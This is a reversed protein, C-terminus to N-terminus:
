LSLRFPNEKSGNGSSLIVNSNLYFVPRVANKDSAYFIELVGDDCLRFVYMELSPSPTITWEYLGMYLWNDTAYFDYEYLGRNWKEPSAAYGYDSPYMLGIYGETSTPNSGYGTSGREYEYFAAATARTDTAGGLYWTTIAIMDVWKSDINNLYNLYNTNLNVINLESTTWDNSGSSNIKHQYFAAINDLSMNGRYNGDSSASYTEEYDGNTGLMESTTYDYKILKANYIGDKDDDLLGIIRYLNDNPCTAADSGFCVYNNPDAGSYRYSNDEAEQDANTYTGVGDHYYLGNVGDETYISNAIYCSLSNAGSNNCIKQGITPEVYIDFYVYCKDSVNSKMVVKKAEDDWSLTGGNECRSLSANFVYGEQPWKSQTVEEYSGTGAETELMMTLMNTSKIPNKTDEEVNTKNYGINFIVLGTVMSLITIVIIKKHM